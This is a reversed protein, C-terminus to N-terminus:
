SACWAPRPKVSHHSRSGGFFVRLLAYGEPARENFKYSSWTVANIPRRESSPIVLGFGQLPRHIDAIRYALSITGTSVYRIASLAQTTQPAVQQLLDATVFAPTAMVVNKARVISGEKMTLTFSDNANRAINQVTTRLRLDGSLRAVLADVMEETGGRFSVFASLPKSKPAGHGNGNSARRSELMGRTLSGYQEELARFRPFTALLSQKEAESNYIGSLM